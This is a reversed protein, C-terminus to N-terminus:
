ACATFRGRAPVALADVPNWGRDLRTLVTNPHLGRRECAETLPVREDDIDVWIGSPEKILPQVLDRGRYGAKYRRLVTAPHLNFAVAWQSITRTEGNIAACVNTRRNNAQETLGAWRCNGPEYDGDNDPYRDISKGEPRPGMDELFALFSGRWRDCVKIGRGGYNAYGASKPNHCRTQIDTWTWFEPTESMGHKISAQRLREAGCAQCSTRRGCRVMYGDLVCSNGCDCKFRWLINKSKTRRETSSIAVLSGFRRGAMEVVKM